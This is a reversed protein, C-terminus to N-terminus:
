GAGCPPAGRHDKLVEAMDPEIAAAIAAWGAANPHLVPRGDSERYLSADPAGDRLMTQGVDRFAAGYRAWDVRALLGNVAQRRADLRGRPLLGLVLVRVGPLRQHLLEVVAQVGGAADAASAGGRPSIDNTGILVVALKPRIGDIEGNELRWLVNGTTDGSFGLNVANRCAYYRRWVGNIDGFKAGANELEHVISDGVFIVAPASGRIERLKQEHRAMWGPKDQPAPTEAAGAAAVLVAM